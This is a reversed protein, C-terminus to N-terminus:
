GDGGDAGRWYGRQIAYRRFDRTWALLNEEARTLPPNPQARQTAPPRSPPEPLLTAQSTPQIYQFQVPPTANPSDLSAMTIASGPGLAARMFGNWIQAPLSGGTVRRMPSFDDNGVWVGTVLDASYGIFWADRWDSSTGTKGAAAHGPLQARRGTGSQIVKYLMANMTAATKASIAREPPPPRRRYVVLGDPTRVETVLYPMVRIGGSAFGGYAATLELPTVVSTGLPLSPYPGLYSTIGLRQATDIVREVGIENGVRVAVTNISRVLAQELTVFGYSAGGYNQPTYDGITVPGGSRVTSPTYGYELAAAYVLPKFSSGPQRRAQTVRNFQSQAYDRGGILARVAGSREMAVLAAQGAEMEHGRAELVQEVAARAMEQMALDITTVVTFDGRALPLLRHVEQAAADFFYNRALNEKGTVIMAPHNHAEVIAARSAAGTMLMARLVLDTRLQAAALDNRPSLISPARTLAALMAAEALTVDRASKGFYVHAAGDVGYAGSGLYIRNLYLELIENKTLRRELALAGSIERLKRDITREPSLFLVKVLQQTITSGGQVPQWDAEYNALTARLIGRPDVGPHTFFRRDEMALFAAPLYRPMESLKLREGANVGYHGLVNGQGDVFTYASPRNLAFLDTNKPIHPQLEALAVFAFAAAVIGAAALAACAYFFGRLM